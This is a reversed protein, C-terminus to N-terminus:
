KKYFFWSDNALLVVESLSIDQSLLFELLASNVQSISYDHGAFIGGSKVKSYYNQM